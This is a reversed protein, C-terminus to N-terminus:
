KLLTYSDDVPIDSRFAYSPIKTNNYLAPVHRNKNSVNKTHKYYAKVSNIISILNHANLFFM